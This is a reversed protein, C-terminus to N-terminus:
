HPSWSDCPASGSGNVISDDSRATPILGIGRMAERFYAIKKLGEIFGHRCDRYKKAAQRKDKPFHHSPNRYMSIYAQAAAIAATVNQFQKVKHMAALTAAPSGPKVDAPSLWANRVADRGAKLVLGEMVEAIAAVGSPTNHKYRDFAEALRTRLPRPLRKIESRFEDDAIQQILPICSARRQVTGDAAVTLLGYGDNMLRKADSQNKLYIEEPCVCYIAIPIQLKMVNTRRLSLIIPYPTGSSVEVFILLHDHLKFYFTPNWNLGKDLKVGSSTPTQFVSNFFTKAASILFADGSSLVTGSM